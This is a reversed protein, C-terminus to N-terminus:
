FAQGLSFHFQIRNIRQATRVGLGQLLQEQTGSFGEFRPSNPAFAIDVRIPGVPYPVGERFQVLDVGKIADLEAKAVAEAKPCDM